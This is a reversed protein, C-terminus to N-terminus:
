PWRIGGVESAPQEVIAIKPPIPPTPPGVRQAYWGGRHRPPVQDEPKAASAAAVIPNVHGRLTPGARGSAVNFAHIANDVVCIFQSGDGSFLRAGSSGTRLRPHHGRSRRRHPSDSRNEARRFVLRHAPAPPRGIRWRSSRNMRVSSRRRRGCGWAVGRVGAGLSCGTLPTSSVEKGTAGDFVKLIRM